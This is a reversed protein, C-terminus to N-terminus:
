VIRSGLGGHDAQKSLGIGNDTVTLELGGKVSLEVTVHGSRDGPFAYKLSNTVLENVIIGLALAEHNPLQFDECTVECAIPRSPALSLFLKDVMEELFRRMHVRQAQKLTLHDYLGAMVLLRRSTGELAAQVPPEANKAEMRIMAGLVNLNNKTRHAMEQLL